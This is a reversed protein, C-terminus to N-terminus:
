KINGPSLHSQHLRAWSGSKNHIKTNKKDKKINKIIKLLKQMKRIKKSIKQKINGPSLHSPHLRAWSGMIGFMGRVRDTLTSSIADVIYQHHHTSHDRAM